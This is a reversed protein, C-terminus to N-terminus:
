HKVRRLGQAPGQVDAFAHGEDVGERGGDLVQVEGRVVEHDVIVCGELDVHRIRLKGELLLPFHVM